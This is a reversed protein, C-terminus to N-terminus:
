SMRDRFAWNLGSASSPTSVMNSFERLVDSAFDAVIADLYLKVDGTTPILVLGEAEKIARAEEMQRASPGFGFVKTAFTHPLDKLSEHFSALGAGLGGTTLPHETPDLIGIIAHVRRHLQFESLFRVPESGAYQSM